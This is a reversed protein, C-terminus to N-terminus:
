EAAGSEPLETGLPIFAPPRYRSRRQSVDSLVWEFVGRGHPRPTFMVDFPYPTFNLLSRDTSILYFKPPHQQSELTSDFHISLQRSFVDFATKFPVNLSDDNHFEEGTLYLLDKLAASTDTTLQAALAEVQLRDKIDFSHLYTLNHMKINEDRSGSVLIDKTPHFAVCTIPATHARFIDLTHGSKVDWIYLNGDWTGSALRKGDKTFDLSLVPGDSGRFTRVRDTQINWLHINGDWSASALWNGDPSFQLDWVGNLHNETGKRFIFQGDQVRWLHVQKDSGGSAFYKSNPSFAVTRAKDHHKEQLDIHM